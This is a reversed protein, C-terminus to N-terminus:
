RRNAECSICLRASTPIGGRSVKKAVADSIAAKLEEDIKLQYNQQSKAEEAVALPILAAHAHGGCGQITLKVSCLSDSGSRLGLAGRWLLHYGYGDGDSDSRM